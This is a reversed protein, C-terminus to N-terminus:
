KINKYIKDDNLSFVITSGIKIDNENLIHNNTILLNTYSTKVENEVKCFFSTRKIGNKTYINCIGNKMQNLIIETDKISIPIPSTELYKEKIEEM